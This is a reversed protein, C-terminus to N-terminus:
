THIRIYYSTLNCDFNNNFNVSSNIANFYVSDGYTYIPDLPIAHLNSSFEVALWDTFASLTKKGGDFFGFLIEPDFTMIDTLTNNISSFTQYGNTVDENTIDLARTWGNFEITEYDDPKLIDFMETLGYLPNGEVIVLKVDFDIAEILTRYPSLTDNFEDLILLDAHFGVKIKGVLNEWGCIEAANTTVMQTLNYDSFFNSLKNINWQDAIKLEGLINKAGSPSWDPALAVTVGEEWAAKVDTTNGYLMLNSTPSWVMKAGISAMEEFNSRNFALAHIAVLPEILLGKNKLTDFENHSLEDTGEGIHLFFADLNGKNHANLISRESLSGVPANFMMTKDKGFNTHDINRVLISNYEDDCYGAGQISTTGGILAKIEAYKTTETRLDAYKSNILIDCPNDIDPSYNDGAQWEYRNSYLTDIDWLPITNYYPHNHTDILGPFIIGDTEILSIGTIDINAPPSASSEWIAEILGNRVLIKGSPIIGMENEMSVIKGQLIYDTEFPSIEDKCRFNLAIFIFSSITIVSILSISILIIKKNKITKM